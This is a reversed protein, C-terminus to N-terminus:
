LLDQIYPIKLDTESKVKYVSWQILYWIHHSEFPFKADLVHYAKLCFDVAELVSSSKYINENIVVYSTSVNNLTSGVLIIYPQVTM